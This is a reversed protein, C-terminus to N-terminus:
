QFVVSAFSARRAPNGNTPAPPKPAPPKPSPQPAAPQPAPKPAPQPAVPQPVPPAPPVVPQPVPQPVPPVVPQPVPPAPPVVPQPAMASRFSTLSPALFPRFVPASSAPVSANAQAIAAIEDIHHKEESATDVFGEEPLIDLKYEIPLKMQAMGQFKTVRVIFNAGFNRAELEINIPCQERLATSLSQAAPSAPDPLILLSTLGLASLTSIFKSVHDPMAELSEIATWPVVTDFIAYSVGNEKVITTLEDLVDPLPLPANRDSSDPRMSSYPCIILQGTSVADNIDINDSSISAIVDEPRKYTFVIVREGIRLTKVLFQSAFVFKGSNRRGCLITPHHLYIGGFDRDLVEIGTKTTNLAM